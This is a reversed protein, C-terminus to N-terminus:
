SIASSAAAPSSYRCISSTDNAQRHSSPMRPCTLRSPSSGARRGALYEETIVSKNFSLGLVMATVMCVQRPLWALM